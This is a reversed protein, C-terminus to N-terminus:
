PAIANYVLRFAAPLVSNITVMIADFAAVPRNQTMVTHTDANATVTLVAFTGDATLSDLHAPALNFFDQAQIAAWVTDVQAGTLSLPSTVTCTASDRDARDTRCFDGAGTAEFVVLRKLFDPSVSGAKAIVVLDAPASARVAAPSGLAAMVAAVLAFAAAPVSTKRKM